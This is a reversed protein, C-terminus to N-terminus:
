SSTITICPDCDRGIAQTCYQFYSNSDGQPAGKCTQLVAEEPKERVLVILEPSSWAKEM